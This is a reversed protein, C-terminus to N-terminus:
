KWEDKHDLKTLIVTKSEGKYGKLVPLSIDVTTKGTKYNYRAGYGVYDGEIEFRFSALKQTPDSVTIAYKEGAEKKIMIIGPTKATLKGGLTKIKVTSPTYFVAETINGDASSVAQCESNNSNVVFSPQKAFAATQEPTRDPLICYAYSAKKTNYGHDISITVVEGSDVANKPYFKAIDRWSGQRQEISINTRAPDIMYYGVKDHHVWSLWRESMEGKNLTRAALNPSYTVNGKHWSQNLTTLVSHKATSRKAEKTSIGSGLCVVVDNLFFYAKRASLSDYVLDLAAIGTEGDSAGGVFASRNVPKKPQWLPIPLTDYVATLGPLRKWDWLPFINDYEDGDVMISMVGDATYKGKLNESNTMEYGLTRDSNMRVSAFWAPTRFVGYDSRWFYKYGNVNNPTNPNLQNRYVYDIYQKANAPDVKTMNVATVALSHSKGRLANRFFQRGCASPDMYGRWVTWQLGDLVYGRMYEVQSDSIALPTGSFVRAWYTTTGAYALGYNGFQLQPGHQHFSFDPQLGESTSMFIESVISDRSQRILAEDKQLMGRILVNGAQWIKNQGTQRLTSNAMVKIAERLEEPTLEDEILVVAPGMLRPVGIENYWWNPCVHGAKFWYDMAKHIVKSLEKSMYHKSTPTKYVKVLSQIRTPHYSPAWQSRSKDKYNIDPWSGDDKISAMYKDVAKDSINVALYLELVMVDNYRGHDSITIFENIMEKTNVKEQLSLANMNDTLEKILPSQASLGSIISAQVFLLLLLKKM